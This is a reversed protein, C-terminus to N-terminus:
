SPPSGPQDGSSSGTWRASGESGPSVHALIVGMFVAALAMRSAGTAMNVAVTINNNNNNNISPGRGIGFRVSVSAVRVSSEGVKVRERGTGWPVAGGAEASLAGTVGGGGCLM